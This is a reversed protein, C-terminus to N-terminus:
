RHRHPRCSPTLAKARLPNSALWSACSSCIPATTQTSLGFWGSGDAKKRYVIYLTDLNVQPIPQGSPRGTAAARPSGNIDLRLGKAVAVFTPDPANVDGALTIPVGAISGRLALYTNM